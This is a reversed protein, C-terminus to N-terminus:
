HCSVHTRLELMAKTCRKNIVRKLNMINYACVQQEGSPGQGEGGFMGGFLGDAGGGGSFGQFGGFGPSGRFTRVRPGGGMGGMGGMGGGMGSMGGFGGGGGFPGACTFAAPPGYCLFVTFKFLISPFLRLVYM